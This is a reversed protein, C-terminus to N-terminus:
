ALLKDISNFFMGICQVLIIGIRHGRVERLVRNIHLLVSRSETSRSDLFKPCVPELLHMEAVVLNRDILIGRM